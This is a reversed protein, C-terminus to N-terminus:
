PRRGVVDLITPAVFLAGPIKKVAALDRKFRAALAPTVLRERVLDPLRGVFFLEAWRWLDSDPGGVRLNPTVAVEVLGLSNFLAPLEGAVRADGGHKVYWRRVAEIVEDFSERRPCYACGLHHYDEIAVAGGRKLGPVLRKLTKAVDPLFSVFWRAFILDYAGPRPKFRRVDDEFIEVNAFDKRALQERLTEAYLPAAEIATVSGSAGVRQALPLTVMGIGAGVDLCRMGERIGLRDFLGETMSRWVEGQFALREIEAPSAGLLYPATM